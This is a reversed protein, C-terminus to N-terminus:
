KKSSDKKSDSKEATEKKDSKAQRRKASDEKVKQSLLIVQGGAKTVADVASQSAKNIKITLKKNIKGDGLLKVGPKIKKILGQELLKAPTIKDGTKFNDNIQKLNVINFKPKASKFGPLKPISQINAKLGRLKLGGKGGSRARQGKMGRGSYNGLGSSNGRGLRKKRKKSGKAPKLNHLQLAM